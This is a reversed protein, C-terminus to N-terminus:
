SRITISVEFKEEGLQFPLVLTQGVQVKFIQHNEGVVIDPIAMKFDYGLENLGRKVMSYIVNTLEGVGEKVTQDVEEFDRGYIDRLINFITQKPFSVTLTGEMEQQVMGVTGSVDGQDVHDREFRHEGTKAELNFMSLFVDRVNSEVIDAVQDTLEFNTTAKKAAGM